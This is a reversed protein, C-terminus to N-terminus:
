VTTVANEQLLISRQRGAARSMLPGFGTYGNLM